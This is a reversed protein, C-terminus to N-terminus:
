NGFEKSIRAKRRKNKAFCSRTKAKEKKLKFPNGGSELSSSLRSSNSLNLFTDDKDKDKRKKNEQIEKGEEERRRAQREDRKKEGDRGVESSKKRLFSGNKGGFSSDNIKKRSINLFSSENEENLRSKEPSGKASEGSRCGDFYPHALLQSASPRKQPDFQLMQSILEIAHKSANTNRFAVPLSIGTQEPFKFGIKASLKMGDPWSLSNPSGLLSCLKNLQDIESSGPFLPNLLYLEAMICGEAFIDIPSNYNDSRLAKCLGRM